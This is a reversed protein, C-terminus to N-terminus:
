AFDYEKVLTKVQNYNSIMKEYAFNSFERTQPVNLTWGTAAELQDLKENGEYLDETNLVFPLSSVLLRHRVLRAMLLQVYSTPIDVPHKSLHEAYSRQVSGPVFVGTKDCIFNSCLWRLTDSPVLGVNLDFNDMIPTLDVGTDEMLSALQTKVLVDKDTNLLALAGYVDPATAYAFHSPTEVWDLQGNISVVDFYSGDYADYHPDTRFLVAADQDFPKAAGKGFKYGRKYWCHLFEGLPDGSVTLQNKLNSSIAAELNKSGTRQLSVLHVKM